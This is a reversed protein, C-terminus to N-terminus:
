PDDDAGSTDVPPVSPNLGAAELMERERIRQQITEELDKGRAALVESLTTLGLRLELEAAQAEKIPDVWPWGRAQWQAARVDSLPAPLSGRSAQVELWASFIPEIVHEILLRQADRYTDREELTGQRISSYSVGELDSAFSVYSEGSAAAIGRLVAKEFADFGANPHDPAWSSVEVGPPLRHWTGPALEESPPEHDEGDYAAAGSRDVYFGVKSAAVRAAVLEAERYKQHQRLDSMAATLWPLGRAQGAYHRRYAHVIEGAPIRYRPGRYDVPRIHYAIPRGMVTREVGMVIEVADPDGRAEVDYETDIQQADLIQVAFGSETGAARPGLLRIVAEGDRLISELALAQVDRFSMGGCPTCSGRRCWASWSAELREAIQRDSVRSQLRVGREGVVNRVMRQIWGRVHANNSSLDRSRTRLASLASRIQDKPSVTTRLWDSLRDTAEAAEFRRAATSVKDTM